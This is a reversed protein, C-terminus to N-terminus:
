AWVEVGLGIVVFAMFALILIDLLIIMCEYVMLNKTFPVKASYPIYKEIVWIAVGVLAITFTIKWYTLM